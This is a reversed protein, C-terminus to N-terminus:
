AFLASVQFVLPETSGKPEWPMTENVRRAAASRSIVEITLTEPDVIWYEDVKADMYLAKKEGRDRRATVPSLIEVVLIPIPATDWDRDRGTPTPHKARVLLDPEAESGDFRLVARPRQVYGLHQADVYPTLIAALRAAIEEHEVSPPPTVFLDGRVLEYRNGDDPLRHVEHLTWRRVSTVVAM